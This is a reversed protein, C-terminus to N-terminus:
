RATRVNAAFRGDFSAVRDLSHHRALALGALAHQIHRQSTSM